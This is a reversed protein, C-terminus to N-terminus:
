GPEGDAINVALVRAAAENRVLRWKRGAPFGAGGLGRLGSNEMTKMIAEADRSGALCEAALRYGGSKRYEAYTIYKGVPCKTKKAAALQKVKDVTAQAVPNQGIV